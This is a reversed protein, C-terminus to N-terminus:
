EADKDKEQGLRKSMEYFEKGCLAILTGVIFFVIVSVLVPFSM